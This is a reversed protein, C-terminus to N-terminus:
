AGGSIGMEQTGKGRNRRLDIRIRHRIDKDDSGSRLKFALHQTNEEQNDTSRAQQCRTWMAGHEFTSLDLTHMTAGLIAKTRPWCLGRRIQPPVWFLLENNPGIVWGDEIDSSSLIARCIRATKFLESQPCAHKAHQSFSLPVLPDSSADWIRITHDRSGSAVHLGDPSFAVSQVSDTHGTLPKCVLAGTQIDWIRLTDDWSGSAVRLGDPSFAVSAVASKHGKLPEILSAGTRADWIRVTHDFSGSVIKSSDPSFAVSYVAGRHGRIPEGVLMCTQANWIRITLDNSASAIHCNDPSFAVSGVSETHGKLVKCAPINTRGVKWIRVTNDWSGSVVQRGDPSFAISNVINTHGKLPEGLPTSTKPDWFQITWDRSASAIYQRQIGPAFQTIGLVRCLRCAMLHFHSRPWQKPISDCQSEPQRPQEPMGYEFHLIM